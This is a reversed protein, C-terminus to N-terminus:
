GGSVNDQYYYCVYNNIVILVLNMIITWISM